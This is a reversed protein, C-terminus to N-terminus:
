PTDDIADHRHTWLLHAVADVLADEDVEGLVVDAQLLSPAAWSFSELWVQMVRPSLRAGALTQFEQPATLARRSLEAVAEGYTPLDSPLFDRLGELEWLRIQGIAGLEMLFAAPLNQAGDAFGGQKFRADWNHVCAATVTAALEANRIIAATLAPHSDDITAIM